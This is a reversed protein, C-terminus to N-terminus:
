YHEEWSNETGLFGRLVGEWEWWLAKTEPGRQDLFKAKPELGGSRAGDKM